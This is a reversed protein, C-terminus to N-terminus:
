SATIEDTKYDRSKPMIDGVAHANTRASHWRNPKCYQCDMKDPGHAENLPIAARGLVDHHKAGPYKRKRSTNGSPSALTTEGFNEGYCRQSNEADRKRAPWTGDHLDLDTDKGHNRFRQAFIPRACCLM